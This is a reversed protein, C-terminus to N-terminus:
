EIGQDVEQLLTAVITRNGDREGQQEGKTGDAAEEVQNNWGHNGFQTVELVHCEVVDLATGVVRGDGGGHLVKQLLM